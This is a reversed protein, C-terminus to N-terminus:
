ASSCLASFLDFFYDIKETKAVKGGQVMLTKVSFRINKKEQLGQLNKICLFIFIAYLFKQLRSWPIWDLWFYLNLSKLKFKALSAWIEVAPNDM